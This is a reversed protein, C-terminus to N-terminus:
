RLLFPVILTGESRSPFFTSSVSYWTVVADHALPTRCCSNPTFRSFISQDTSPRRPRLWSPWIANTGVSPILISATGDPWVSWVRRSLPFSSAIRDLKLDLSLLVSLSFKLFLGLADSTRKIIGLGLKESVATLFSNKVHIVCDHNSTWDRPLVARRGLSEVICKLICFVECLLNISCAVLTLVGKIRSTRCM